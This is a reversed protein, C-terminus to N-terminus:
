RKRLQKLLEKPYKTLDPKYKGIGTWTFGKLNKFQLKSTGKSAKLGRRKKISENIVRFRRRCGFHSPPIFQKINPDNIKLIVLNMGICIKTTVKDVVSLFQIYPWTKQTEEANSWRGQNFSTQINQRYILNLRWPTDIKEQGPVDSITKGLWGRNALREKISKKFDALSVGDKIAKLLEDKFDTLIDLNMVKTVTFAQKRSNKLAEKWDKSIAVGKKEFYEVAKEPTLDLAYLIASLTTDKFQKEFDKAYIVFDSFNNIDQFPKQKEVAMSNFGFLIMLFISKSLREYFKSSNLNWLLSDYDLLMRRYSGKDNVFKFLPQLYDTMIKDNVEPNELFEIFSDVLKQDKFIIEKPM